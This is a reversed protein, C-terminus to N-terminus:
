IVEKKGFKADSVISKRAAFEKAVTITIEGKRMRGLITTKEELSLTNHKRKIVDRLFKCSV